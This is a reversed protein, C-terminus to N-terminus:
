TIGPIPAILINLQLRANVSLPVGTKPELNIEFRHKAENPRMGVVGKRYSEDGLYFHPYSIFAPAGQKCKSVDRVGSPHIKDGRFCEQEPYKTGNDFLFDTGIFEKGEIGRYFRTKNSHFVTISSFCVNFYIQNSAIYNVTEVQVFRICIIFGQQIKGSSAM